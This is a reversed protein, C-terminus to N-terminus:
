AGAGAQGAGLWWGIAVAAALLGLLLLALLAVLLWPRRGIPTWRTRELQRDDFRGHASFDGPVPEWLNSPRGPSEPEDTQQDEYGSRALIREAIAPGFRNGWITKFTPWGVVLERKRHRSAWEIAEAAVEPAFIPPVPQARRDLRSLVWDFQPTNLAPLHVITIHIDLGEHLLEARVSETFGVIAHKAACYASQLPIGRYALASGVQVIVGRGRPAMRRLATQTGHVIGLYTVDTVRRFEAPTVQMMPSFVSTMANNVWCDIPGLEAEIRGAADEIADPDAVDAPVALASCGMARIEECAANLRAEGRAILAIDAGARAFARAAARGVGASGGTIVVIRGAAESM